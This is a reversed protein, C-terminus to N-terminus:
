ARAALTALSQRVDAGSAPEGGSEGVIRVAEEVLALNSMATGLPADELGVRVHGGRAVTEGILPRVDVSLGAIMWPASAMTDELLSLHAALAYPKPPFGFAFKESFMFRYVPPKVGAARALSAGARTFGPEYIAFAPHLGKRAAFDLAHRVHAEPNLYTAAPRAGATTTAFSLNVSGPDIVAFDLLGRDALAEVHAFRSAADDTTGRTPPYSPYVSVDVVSRIGEIIRAYVQWDFTQEGGDAYAHTHVISAGARACAIGEAVIQEVTDPIGPQLRRSWGGNLAVEIWVKRMAGEQKQVM